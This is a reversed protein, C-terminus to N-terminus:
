AVSYKGKRARRYQNLARVCCFALQRCFTDLKELKYCGEHSVRKSVFSDPMDEALVDADSLSVARLDGATLM